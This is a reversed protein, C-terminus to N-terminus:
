LIVGYVFSGVGGGGVVWGGGGGGIWSQSHHGDNNREEFGDDKKNIVFPHSSPIKITLMCLYFFTTKSYKTKNKVLM